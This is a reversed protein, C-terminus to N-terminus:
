NEKTTFTEVLRTGRFVAYGEWGMLKEWTPGPSCFHWLEDGSKMKRKFRDWEASGKPSENGAEIQSITVQKDRWHTVLAEDSIDQSKHHSASICGTVVFAALVSLAISGIRM